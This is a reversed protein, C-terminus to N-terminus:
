GSMSGEWFSIIMVSIMLWDTAAASEDDAADDAVDDTGGNASRVVGAFGNIGM